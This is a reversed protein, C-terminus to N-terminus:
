LSIRFATPKNITLDKEVLVCERYCGCNNGDDDENGFFTFYGAGPMQQCKELCGEEDKQNTKKRDVLWWTDGRNDMCSRDAKFEKFGPDKPPVYECPGEASADESKSGKPAEWAEPDPGKEECTPIECYDWEKSPDVTFCWPKDKSGEPNRCYNHNGIGKVTAGYKGQDIWNDCKRGSMSASRLGIYDEGKKSYCDFPDFTKPKCARKKAETGLFTGKPNADNVAFAAMPVLLLVKQFGNM